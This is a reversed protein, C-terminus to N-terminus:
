CLVYVHMYVYVIIVIITAILSAVILGGFFLGAGDASSLSAKTVDCDTCQVNTVTLLTGGFAISFPAQRVIKEAITSATESGSDTSYELVATYTLENSGKCDINSNLLFSKNFSCRCDSSIKLM